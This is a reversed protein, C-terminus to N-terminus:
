IIVVGLSWDDLGVFRLSHSGEWWWSNNCGRVGGRTNGDDGGVLIECGEVGEAGGLTAEDDEVFARGDRDGIDGPRNRCDVSDRPRCGAAGDEAGSVDWWAEAHWHV